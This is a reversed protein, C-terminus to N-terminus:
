QTEGGETSNFVPVIIECALSSTSIPPSKKKKKKTTCSLETNQQANPILCIVITIKFHSYLM